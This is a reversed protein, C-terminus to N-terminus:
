WARWKDTIEHRGIGRRAALAPVDIGHETLTEDIYACLKEREDTEYAAGGVFRKNIANLALVVREVGAFIEDDTAGALRAVDTEFATLTTDTARLMPEPFLEAMFAREPDLTGAALEGAEEAVAERWHQSPKVAM